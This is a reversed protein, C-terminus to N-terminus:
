EQPPRLWATTADHVASKTHQWEPLSRRNQLCCNTLAPNTMLSLRRKGRMDVEPKSKWKSVESHIPRDSECRKAWATFVFVAM